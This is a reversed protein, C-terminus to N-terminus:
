GISEQIQIIDGTYIQTSSIKIKKSVEIQDSFQYPRNGQIIAKVTLQIEGDSLVSNQLPFSLKLVEGVHWCGNIVYNIPKSQWIEPPYCDITLRTIAWSARDMITGRPSYFGAELDISLGGGQDLKHNAIIQLPALFQTKDCTSNVTMVQLLSYSLWRRGYHVGGWKRDWPDVLEVSQRDDDYGIILVAHGELDVAYREATLIPYSAASHLRILVPFGDNICQKISELARPFWPEYGIVPALGKSTSEKISDKSFSATSDLPICERM